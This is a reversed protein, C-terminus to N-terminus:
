EICLLRCLMDRECPILLEPCEWKKWRESFDATQHVQRQVDAAAASARQEMAPSWTEGAGGRPVESQAGTPAGVV